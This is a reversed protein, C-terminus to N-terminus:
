NIGLAKFFKDNWADDDNKSGSKTGNNFDTFTQHEQELSKFQEPYDNIYKDLDNDFDKSDKLLNDAFDIYKENIGKGKYKNIRENKANANITDNLKQQIKEYDEKSHYDKYKTEIEEVLAKKENNALDLISNVILKLTAANEVGGDQLITIIQERTM